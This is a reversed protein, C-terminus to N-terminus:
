WIWIPIISEIVIINKINFTSFNLLLISSITDLANFYRLINNEIISM